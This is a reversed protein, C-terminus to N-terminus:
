CQFIGTMFIPCHIYSLAVVTTLMNTIYKYVTVTTLKINNIKERFCTKVTYKTPLPLLLFFSFVTFVSNNKKLVQLCVIVCFCMAITDMWEYLIWCIWCFNNVCLKVNKKKKKQVHWWTLMVVNKAVERNKWALKLTALCIIIITSIQPSVCILM